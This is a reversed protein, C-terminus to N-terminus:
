KDSFRIIEFDTLLISAQDIKRNNSTLDSHWYIKDFKADPYVLLVRKHRITLPALNCIKHFLRLNM